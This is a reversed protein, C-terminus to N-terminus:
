GPTARPPRGRRVPVVREMADTLQGLLRRQIQATDVTVTVSGLHIAGGPVRLLADALAVGRELSVGLKDHLEIATALIAVASDTLTRRVGQGGRAVGPVEIKALTTDLWDYEVRLALAAVRVDYRAM